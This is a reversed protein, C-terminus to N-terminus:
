SREHWWVSAFVIHCFSEGDKVTLVKDVTSLLGRKHWGKALKTKWLPIVITLLFPFRLVHLATAFLNILVPLPFNFLHRQPLCWLWVFFLLLLFRNKRLGVYAEFVCSLVKFLINFPQYFTVTLQHYHIIFRVNEKLLTMIKQCGSYTKRLHRWLSKVFQFKTILQLEKWLM